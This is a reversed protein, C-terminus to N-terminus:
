VLSSSFQGTLLLLLSTKQDYCSRVQVGRIAAAVLKDGLTEVCGDGRVLRIKDNFCWGAIQISEYAEDIAADVASFYEQGCCLFQVKDGPICSAPLDTLLTSHAICLRSTAELWSPTDQFSDAFQLHWEGVATEIM